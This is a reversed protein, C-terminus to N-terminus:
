SVATTKLFGFKRKLDEDDDIEEVKLIRIYRMLGTEKLYILAERNLAYPSVFVSAQLKTFNNRKLLSRFQNRKLRSDEPIDFILVRWKGDWSREKKVNAKQLLQELQGKETLKIFKISNKEVVNLYGKRRMKWIEQQYRKYLLDKKKKRKLFEYPSELPIIPVDLDLAEFILSFFTGYRRPM